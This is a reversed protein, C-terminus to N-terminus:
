GRLAALKARELGAELKAPDGGGGQALEPRGGGRGGLEQNVEDL